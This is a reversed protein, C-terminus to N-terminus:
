QTLFTLSIMPYAALMSAHGVGRGSSGLSNGRIHLTEGGGEAVPIAMLRQARVDGAQAQGPLALADLGHRRADIRPMDARAVLRHVVENGIRGPVGGGHQADRA